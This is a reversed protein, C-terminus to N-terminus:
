VALSAVAPAVVHQIALVSQAAYRASADGNLSIRLLLVIGLELVRAPPSGLIRLALDPPTRGNCDRRCRGVPQTTSALL